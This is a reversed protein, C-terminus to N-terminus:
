SANRKAANRAAGLMALKGLKGMAFRDKRLPLPGVRKMHGETVVLRRAIPTRGASLSRVVSLDAGSAARRRHLQLTEGVRRNPTTKPLRSGASPPYSDVM